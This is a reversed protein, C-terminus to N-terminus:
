AEGTGALGLAESLRKGKVHRVDKGEVLYLVHRAINKAHDGIREVAKIILVAEAAVPLLAPRSMVGEHLARLADKYELDLLKDGEVVEIALGADRGRLAKMAKELSDEAAKSMRTVGHRYVDV